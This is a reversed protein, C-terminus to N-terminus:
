LPIVMKQKEKHKKLNGETVWDDVEVVSPDNSRPFIFDQGIWSDAWTTDKFGSFQFRWDGFLNPLTSVKPFFLSFDCYWFCFM